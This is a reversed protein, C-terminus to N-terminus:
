DQEASAFVDYDDGLLRRLREAINLCQKYIKEAQRSDTDYGLDSCFNEFDRANEATQANLLLSSLLEDTRPPHDIGTGMFYDTTLRRGQYTLTCSYGNAKRQWEDQKELPLRAGPKCKLTLRNTLERIHM